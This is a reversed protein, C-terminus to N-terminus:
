FSREDIEYLKLVNDTKYIYESKNTYMIKLDARDYVVSNM